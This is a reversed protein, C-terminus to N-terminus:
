PPTLAANAAPAFWQGRNVAVYPPAGEVYLRTAVSKDLTYWRGPEDLLEIGLVRSQASAPVPLHLTGDARPLTQSSSMLTMGAEDSIRIQRTRDGIEIQVTVPTGAPQQVFYRQSEVTPLAYHMRATDAVMPLECRIIRGLIPYSKNNPFSVLEGTCVLVYDGTMGDSPVTLHLQKDHVPDVSGRAVVQGNPAILNFAGGHSYAADITWTQDHAERFYVRAGPRSNEDRDTFYRYALTQGREDFPLHRNAWAEDAVAAAGLYLPLGITNFKTTHAHRSRPTAGVMLLTDVMGRALDLDLTDQSILYGQTLARVQGFGDGVSADFTRVRQAFTDLAPKIRPDGTVQWCLWLGEHAWGVAQHFKWEEGKGECQALIDTSTVAAYSTIIPEALALYRPDWTAQYLTMIRHLQMGSNRIENGVKFPVGWTIWGKNGAEFKALALQGWTELVDLARRDGTLWYMALYDGKHQLNSSLIDGGPAGLYGGMWHIESNDYHYESGAERGNGTHHVHARDASYLTYTQAYRLWDRSAGRYVQMWPLIGWGYHSKPRARHWTRLGHTQGFGSETFFTPGGQHQHYGGWDWWGYDLERETLDRVMALVNDLYRDAAAFRPDGAAVHPFFDLARTSAAYAPDASAIMPMAAERALGAPWPATANPRASSQSGRFSLWVEHTKAAGTANTRERLTALWAAPDPKAKPKNMAMRQKQEDSLFWWQGDFGTDLLRGDRPWLHLRVVGKDIEFGLPYQQWADRVALAVGDYTFWGAPRDAVRVTKNPIVGTALMEIHERDTSDIIFNSPDYCEGAVEGSALDRGGVYGRLGPKRPLAISVSRLRDAASNGTYIFTHDLRVDSRGRFLHIRISYRGFTEGAENTYQGDAKIVARIPGTEELQIKADRDLDARFIGRTEHELYFGSFAAGPLVVPDGLSTLGAFVNLGGRTPVRGQLTGTDIVIADGEVRAVDTTAAAAATSATDLHYRGDPDALFDVLLWRIGASGDANWTALVRQQHPVVAGKADLVRLASADRMQGKAFPVGFRVPTQPRADPLVTDLRVPITEARTPTLSPWPCLILTVLLIAQVGWRTLTMM